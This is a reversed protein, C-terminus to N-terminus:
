QFTDAAGATATFGPLAQGGTSGTHAFGHAKMWDNHDGAENELLEEWALPGRASTSRMLALSATYNAQSGNNKMARLDAIVPDTRSFGFASNVTNNVLGQLNDAFAAPNQRLTNILVWAYAEYGSDIAVAPVVKEEFGELKLKAKM